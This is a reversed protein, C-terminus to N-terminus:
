KANIQEKAWMISEFEVTHVVYGDARMVNFLEATQKVDEAILYM